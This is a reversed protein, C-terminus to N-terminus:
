PRPRRLRRRALARPVGNRHDECYAPSGSRETTNLEGEHDRFHFPNAMTVFLSRFRSTRASSTVVFRQASSPLLLALTQYLQAVRKDEFANSKGMSLSPLKLHCCREASRPSSSHSACSRM